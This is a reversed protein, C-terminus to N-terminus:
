IPADEGACLRWRGHRMIETSLTRPQERVPLVSAARQNAQFFDGEGRSWYVQVSSSRTAVTTRFSGEALQKTTLSRAPLERLLTM